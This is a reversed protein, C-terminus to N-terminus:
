QMAIVIRTPAYWATCPSSFDGTNGSVTYVYRHKRGEFHPDVHAHDSHGNFCKTRTVTQAFTDTILTLCFSPCESTLSRGTDTTMHGCFRWSSVPCLMM